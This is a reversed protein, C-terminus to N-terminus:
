RMETHFDITNLECSKNYWLTAFCYKAILLGHKKDQVDGIAIMVRYVGFDIDEFYEKFLAKTVVEINVNNPVLIKEDQEEDFIIWTGDAKAEKKLIELLDKKVKDNSLANDLLNFLEDTTKSM